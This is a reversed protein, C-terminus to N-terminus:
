SLYSLIIEARKRWISAPALDAAQVLAARAEEPQGLYGLSAGLYFSAAAHQPDYELARRAAAIAASFQRCQYHSGALVTWAAPNEPLNEVAQQAANMGDTCINYSTNLHFRAVLLGYEGSRAPPALELALQYATSARIYDSQQMYWTAWVLQTEARSVTLQELLARVNEPDTNSTDLSLYSLMLLSQMRPDDPYDAALRELQRISSGSQGAQWRAYAEQAAPEVETPNAATVRAFQAVALDSLNLTLYLQGLLRSREQQDPTRLVAALYEGSREHQLPLLPALLPEPPTDPAAQRAEELMALAAAPDDAAQLLALRYTAFQHWDPPLPLELATHLSQEAAQYEEAQLQHEAQLVLAPGVYRCDATDCTGWQSWAQQAQDFRDRHALVHGLYLAALDYSQGELEAHIAYWLAEEALDYEGRVTRVMGLRLLLEPSAEEVGLAIYQQLATYYQGEVLLQDTRELEDPLNLGHYVVYALLGVFLLAALAQPLLSPRYSRSDPSATRSNRM